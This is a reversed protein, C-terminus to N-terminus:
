PAHTPATLKQLNNRLDSLDKILAELDQLHCDFTVTRRPVAMAALSLGGADATTELYVLEITAYPIDPVGGTRLDHKKVSIDWRLEELVSGKCTRRILTRQRLADDYLERTVIDNRSSQEERDSPSLEREILFSFPDRVRGAAARNLGPVIERNLIQELLKREACDSPGVSREVEDEDLRPTITGSGTLRWRLAGSALLSKVQGLVRDFQERTSLKSQPDMLPTPPPSTM